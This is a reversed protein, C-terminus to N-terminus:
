GLCVASVPLVIRGVADEAERIIGSRLPGAARVIIAIVWVLKQYTELL